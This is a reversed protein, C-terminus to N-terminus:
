FAHSSVEAASVARGAGRGFSAALPLDGRLRHVRCRSAALTAELASYNARARPDFSSADLLFWVVPHDLGRLLTAAAGGDPSPSIVAVTCHPPVIEQHDRVLDVLPAADDAQARALAAYLQLRQEEEALPPCSFDRGGCAALFGVSSGREYAQEILSAALTVAYELTHQDDHGCHWPTSLDLVIMADLSEPREYEVVALKGRRATTKWDIHRPDDGPVYDRIGYLEDGQGRLRRRPRIPHPGGTSTPWLYPLPLPRPYVLLESAQGLDRKYQRLGIADPALLRVPGLPYAGRRPPLLDYHLVKQEGPGLIAVPLEVIGSPELAKPVTDSVVFFIRRTHATNTVTLDVRITEGASVASLPQRVVQLGHLKHRGLLWLVLPLCALVAAMAFLQHIHPIFGVIALFFSGWFIAQRKITM